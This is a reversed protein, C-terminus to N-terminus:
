RPPTARSAPSSRSSRPPKARAPAASSTSPSYETRPSDVMCAKGHYHLRNMAEHAYLDIPEEMENFVFRHPCFGDNAFGYLIATGVDVTFGSIGSGIVIVM